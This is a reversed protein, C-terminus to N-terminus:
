RWIEKAIKDSIKQLKSPLYKVIAEHVSVDFDRAETEHWVAWIPGVTDGGYSSEGSSLSGRKTKPTFESKFFMPTESTMWRPGTGGSVWFYIKGERGVFWEISDGSKSKEIVEDPTSEASWTSHTKEFLDSARKVILKEFEEAAAAFGQEPSFKKTPLIAKM